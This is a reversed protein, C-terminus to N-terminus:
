IRFQISIKISKKFNAITAIYKGDELFVYRSFFAGLVFPPIENEFFSSVPLFKNSM